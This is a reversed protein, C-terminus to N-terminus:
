NMLTLIYKAVHINLHKLPARNMVREKFRRLDFTEDVRIEAIVKRLKTFLDNM